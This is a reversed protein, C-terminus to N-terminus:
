FGGDRVEFHTPKDHIPQGRAVWDATWDIMRGLPVIPYGFLRQAELSQNVWAEPAETGEFVPEVGFREGFAQALMRVSALEPGGINLPSAPTTCHLLSRLIQSSSDGQWIVSAHGTAVDVAVAVGAGVAAAAGWIFYHGYGWEFARARSTLLDDSPREFYLWWMAFVLFLAGLLVLYFEDIPVVAGFFHLSLSPLDFRAASRGRIRLFPLLLVAAGGLLAVIRRRNKWM